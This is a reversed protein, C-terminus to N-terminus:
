TQLFQRVNDNYQEEDHSDNELESSTGSVPGGLSKLLKRLEDKTM